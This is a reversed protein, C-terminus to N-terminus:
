QEKVDEKPTEEAVSEEELGKRIKYIYNTSLKTEKVIEKVSSGNKLLDIVKQKNESNGLRSNSVAIDEVLCYNSIVNYVFNYRVSMIEAIRKVELGLNFLNKMKDSKTSESNIIKEIEKALTNKTLTKELNLKKMKM